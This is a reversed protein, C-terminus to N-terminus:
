VITIIMVDTVPLVCAFYALRLITSIMTVMRQMFIFPIANGLEIPHGNGERHLTAVNVNGGPKRKVHM